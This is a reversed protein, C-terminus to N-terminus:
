GGSAFSHFLEFNAGNACPSARESWLRLTRTSCRPCPRFPPSLVMSHDRSSACASARVKSSPCNVRGTPLSPRTAKRTRDRPTCGLVSHRFTAIGDGADGVPHAGLTRHRKRCDDLQGRWPPDDSYHRPQRWAPARERFPIDGNRPRHASPLGDLGTNAQLVEPGMQDLFIFPGVMRRKASPLARRVKFGGRSAAHAHVIVTELSAGGGASQQRDTPGRNAGTRIDM